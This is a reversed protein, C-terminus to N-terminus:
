GPNQQFVPYRNVSLNPMNEASNSEINIDIIIKQKM